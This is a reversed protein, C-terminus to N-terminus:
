GKERRRTKREEEFIYRIIEERVKDDRILFKVRVERKSDAASEKRVCRIVSGVIYYQKHFHENELQLWLLIYQGPELYKETLVRVGGGILDVIKAQCEREKFNQHQIQVFLAEASEIKVEDETLLYYNMDMLCTYRYYERRQFKELQSKLEIELMHVNDKKYREKAQAVARYMGSQAYFVFEFRVELPLLVLRNKEVPMAIVIRGNELYDLVQSKYVIEMEGGSAASEMQQILRIDIKDGPHILESITM